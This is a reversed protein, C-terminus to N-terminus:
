SKKAGLKLFMFMATLLGLIYAILAIIIEIYFRIETMEKGKERSSNHLNM